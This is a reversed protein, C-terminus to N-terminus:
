QIGLLLLWWWSLHHLLAVGIASQYEMHGEQHRHIMMMMTIWCCDCIRQINLKDNVLQCRHSWLLCRFRIGIIQSLIQVSPKKWVNWRVFSRQNASLEIALSGVSCSFQHVITTACPSCITNYRVKALLLLYYVLYLISLIVLSLNHRCFILEVL